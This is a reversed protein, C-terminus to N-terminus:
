SNARGRWLECDIDGHRPYEPTQYTDGPSLNRNIFLTDDAGVVRVRAAEHMRLALEPVQCKRTGFVDARPPLEALAGRSGDAQATQREWSVM